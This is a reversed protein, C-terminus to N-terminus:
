CWGLLVAVQDLVLSLLRLCFCASVQGPVNFNHMHQQTTDYSLRSYLCVHHMIIFNVTHIGLANSHDFVQNLVNQLWLNECSTLFFQSM